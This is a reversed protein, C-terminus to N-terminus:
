STSWVPSSSAAATLLPLADIEVLTEDVARDPWRCGVVLQGRPPLPHLWYDGDWRLMSAASGLLLLVPGDGSRVPPADRTGVTASRGDSQVVGFRFRGPSRSYDRMSWGLDDKRQEDAFLVAVALILGDSHATIGRVAIAVEATRALLFSSLAPVGVEDQAPGAVPDRHERHHMWDGGTRVEQDSGDDDFLNM